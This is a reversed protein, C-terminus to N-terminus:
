LFKKDCRVINFMQFNIHQFPKSGYEATHLFVVRLKNAAELPDGKYFTYIITHYQNSIVRVNVEDNKKRYHYFFM